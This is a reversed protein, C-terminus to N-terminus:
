AISLSYVHMMMIITYNKVLNSAAKIGPKQDDICVPADKFEESEPHFPRESWSYPSDDNWNCSAGQCFFFIDVM